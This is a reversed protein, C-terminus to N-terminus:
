EKKKLIKGIIESCKSRFSSKKKSLSDLSYSSQASSVQCDEFNWGFDAMPAITLNSTSKVDRKTIQQKTLSSSRRQLINLSKRNNNSTMLFQSKTIRNQVLTTKKKLTNHLNIVNTMSESFRIEATSVHLQSSFCSIYTSFPLTNRHRQSILEAKTFLTWALQSCKQM